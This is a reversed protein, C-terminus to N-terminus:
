PTLSPPANNEGQTNQPLGSDNPVRQTGFEGSGSTAPAVNSSNETSSTSGDNSPKGNQEQSGNAQDSPNNIGQVAQDDPREQGEPRSPPTPSNPNDSPQEPTANEAPSSNPSESSNDGENMNGAPKSTSPASTEDQSSPSSNPAGPAAQQQSGASPGPQRDSPTTGNSNGNATPQHGTTSESTGQGEDPQGNQKGAPISGTNNGAQQNGGNMPKNGQPASEPQGTGGKGDPQGSKANTLANNPEAKESGFTNDKNENHSVDNNGFGRALDDMDGNRFDEDRFDGSHDQKFKWRCPSMGEDKAAQRDEPTATEAHFEFPRGMMAGDVSDVLDKAKKDNPSFVSVQAYTDSESDFSDMTNAIADSLNQRKVNNLVDGVSDESYENLANVDIVQGKRNLVYEISTNGVDLTAYSYAFANEYTWGSATLVGLLAVAAVAARLSRQWQPVASHAVDVEQGIERIGRQKIVIGDERLLASYGNKAELVIARM